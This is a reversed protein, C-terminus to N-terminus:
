VMPPKDGPKGRSFHSVPRELREGDLVITVKENYFCCLGEVRASELLPQRYYWIVDEHLKGNIEVSYYEAEGKYPCKTRTTSPRLVDPRISTLPLYYRAPLGTEYLHMSSTTDAVKVDDILVQVHRTSALIDIRKFPDKPHVFIPTSEEFWQDAAAFDIKVLSKLSEAPGSLSDTFEFAQEITKSGATISLHHAVVVGDATTIKKGQKVTVDKTFGSRPVYLQPYFPVEWVFVASTTKVIYTGNFLAQVLRPTPLTKSAGNTALKVAIQELGSM